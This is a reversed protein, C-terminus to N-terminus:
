AVASFSRSSAARIASPSLLRCIAVTGRSPSSATALRRDRSNARVPRRDRVSTTM